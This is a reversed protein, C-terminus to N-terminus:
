YKKRVSLGIYRGSSKYKLDFYNFYSYYIEINVTLFVSHIQFGGM